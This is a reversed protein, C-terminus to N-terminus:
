VVPLGKCKWVFRAWSLCNDASMQGSAWGKKRRGVRIARPRSRLKIRSSLLSLGDDAQHLDRVQAREREALRRREIPARQNDATKNPRSFEIMPRSHRCPSLLNRKLHSVKLASKITEWNRGMM